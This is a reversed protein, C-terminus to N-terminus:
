RNRAAASTVEHAPARHSQLARRAVYGTLGLMIATALVLLVVAPTPAHPALLALVILAFASSALAQRALPMSTGADRTAFIAWFLVVGNSASLICTFGVLWAVTTRRIVDVLWIKAVVRQCIVSAQKPSIPTAGHVAVIPASAPQTALCPSRRVIVCGTGLVRPATLM